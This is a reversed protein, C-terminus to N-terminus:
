PKTFREPKSGRLKRRYDRDRKRFCSKCVHDGRTLIKTNEPKQSHGCRFTSVIPM